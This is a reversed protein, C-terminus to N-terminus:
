LLWAAREDEDQTLMLVDRRYTKKWICMPRKEHIRRMQCTEWVYPLWAAGGVGIQTLRQVTEKIPRKDQIKEYIYTEKWIYIDRKVHTVYRLDALQVELEMMHLHINREYTEKEYLCLDRKTYIRRKQCMDWVQPWCAAGGVGVHRGWGRGGSSAFM